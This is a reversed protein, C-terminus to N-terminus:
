LYSEQDLGHEAKNPGVSVSEDQALSNIKKKQQVNDFFSKLHKKFSDHFLHDLEVRNRRFTSQCSKKHM